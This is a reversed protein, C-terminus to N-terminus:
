CGLGYSTGDGGGYHERLRARLSTPLEASSLAVLPPLLERPVRSVHWSGAAAVHRWRYYPGDERRSIIAPGEQPSMRPDPAYVRLGRMLTTKVRRSKSM